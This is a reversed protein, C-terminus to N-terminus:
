HLYNLNWVDELNIQEFIIRNELLLKTFLNRGHDKNAFTQGYKEILNTVREVQIKYQDEENFNNWFFVLQTNSHYLDVTDFIAQFYSYDAEGLGHGYFLIKDIDSPIVMDSNLKNELIRYSKTFQTPQNSFFTNVKDYDIGFIINKDNLNGHINRQNSVQYPQTYNFSLVYSKIVGSNSLYRIDLLHDILSMSGSENQLDELNQAVYNTTNIDTYFLLLTLLLIRSKIFYDNKHFVTGSLEKTTESKGNAILIQNTLFENFHKELDILDHKIVDFIHNLNISEEFFSNEVRSFLLFYTRKILDSSLEIKSGKTKLILNIEDILQKKNDYFDIKLLNNEYLFDIHLLQLFIQTEIDTWSYDKESNKSNSLYKFFKNWYSKSDLNSPSTLYEKFFDTYSSKLGCALDFGNGIILLQKIAENNEM